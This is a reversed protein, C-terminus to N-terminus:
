FRRGPQLPHAFGTPNGGAALQFGAAFELAAPHLQQRDFLALVRWAPFFLLEHTAGWQQGATITNATAFAHAAPKSQELARGPQQTHGRCRGVLDTRAGTDM